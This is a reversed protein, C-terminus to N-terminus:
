NCVSPAVLIQTELIVLKLFIKNTNRLFFFIVTERITKYNKLMTTSICFTMNAFYDNEIKSLLKQHICM